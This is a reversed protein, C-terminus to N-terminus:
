PCRVPLVAPDNCAWAKRREMDLRVIKPLGSDQSYMVEVSVNYPLGVGRDLVCWRRMWRYQPTQTGAPNRIGNADLYEAPGAAGASWPCPSTRSAIGAMLDETALRVTRANFEEMKQTALRMAVGSDNASQSGSLVTMQVAVTGMLGVMAVLLAVMVELLTFGGDGDRHRRTANDQMRDGVTTNQLTGAM